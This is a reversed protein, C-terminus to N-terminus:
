KRTIQVLRTLHLIIVHTYPATTALDPTSPGFYVGGAGIEANTGAVAERLPATGEYEPM